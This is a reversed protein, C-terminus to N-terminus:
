FLEYLLSVEWNLDAVDSSGSIFNFGDLLIEPDTYTDITLKGFHLGTGLWLRNMPFDLKETEDSYAPDSDSYEYKWQNSWLTTSGGARIDLWSFVEGEFGIKLYPLMLATWKEEGPTFATDTSTYEYKVTNLMLGFDAVALMNPGTTYNMGMGLDFGTRKSKWTDTETVNGSADYSLADAGRSGITAAAHPVLTVKPNQVWFYRGQIMADFYGNPKTVDQGQTNKDTWSGFSAQAAVDWQGSTGETLGVGFTFQSFAEEEKNRSSFQTSDIDHSYTARVVDLSFGFDNGGLDRGYILQIRRPTGIPAVGAVDTISKLDYYYFLEELNTFFPEGFGPLPEHATPGYYPWTSVFTGLVWPNDENFQWTIGFNYFENDFFGSGGPSFEGLALDPYSNIRGPFRMMNYDDVMIMDNDGMVNTRQKTAFSSASMLMLAILIGIAFKKM